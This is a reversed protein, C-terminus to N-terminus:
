FRGASNKSLLWSIQAGPAMYAMAPSLCSALLLVLVGLERLARMRADVMVQNGLSLRLEVYSKRNYRSPACLEKPATHGM